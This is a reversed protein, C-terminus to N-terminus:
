SACHGKGKTTEHCYNHKTVTWTKGWCPIYSWTRYLLWLSQYPSFKSSTKNMNAETFNVQSLISSLTVLKKHNGLFQFLLYSFVSEVIHSFMCDWWHQHSIQSSVSELPPPSTGRCPFLDLWLWVAKTSTGAENPLKGLAPKYTRDFFYFIFIVSEESSSIENLTHDPKLYLYFATAVQLPQNVTIARISNRDYYDRQTFWSVNKKQTREGRKGTGNLLLSVAKLRRVHPQIRTSLTKDEPATMKPSQQM